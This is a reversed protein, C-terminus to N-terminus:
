SGRLRQIERFEKEAEDRERSGEEVVDRLRVRNYKEEM